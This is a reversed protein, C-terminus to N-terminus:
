RFSRLQDVLHAEFSRCSLSLSFDPLCLKDLSRSERGRGDNLSGIIMSTTGFSIRRSFIRRNVQVLSSVVSFVITSWCMVKEFFLPVQYDCFCRSACTRTSAFSFWHFRFKTAFHISLRQVFLSRRWSREKEQCRRETLDFLEGLIIRFLQARSLRLAEVHMVFFRQFLHSIM